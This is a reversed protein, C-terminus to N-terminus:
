LAPTKVTPLTTAQRIVTNNPIEAIINKYDTTICLAFHNRPAGSVFWEGPTHKM